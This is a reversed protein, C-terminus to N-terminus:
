GCHMVLKGSGVIKIRRACLAKPVLQELALVFFVDGEDDPSVSVVGEGYLCVTSMGCCNSAGDAESVKTSAPVVHISDGDNHSLSISFSSNLVTKLADDDPSWAHALVQDGGLYHEKM